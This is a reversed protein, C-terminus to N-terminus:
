GALGVCNLAFDGSARGGRVRLGIAAGGGAPYFGGGEAGQLM